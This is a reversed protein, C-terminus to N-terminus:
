QVEQQQLHHLQRQKENEQMRFLALEIDTPPAINM